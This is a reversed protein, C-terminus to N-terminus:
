AAAREAGALARSSTECSRQLVVRRRFPDMLNGGMVELDAPGPTLVTVRAGTARVAAV